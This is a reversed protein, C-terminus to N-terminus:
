SSPPQCTGLSQRSRMATTRWTALSEEIRFSNTTNKTPQHPLNPLYDRNARGKAPSGLGGPPHGPTIGTILPRQVLRLKQDLHRADQLHRLLLLGAHQNQAALTRDAQRVQQETRNGLLDDTEPWAGTVMALSSGFLQNRGVPPSLLM